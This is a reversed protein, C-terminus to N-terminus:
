FLDDLGPRVHLRRADAYGDRRLRLGRDRHLTGDAATVPNGPLGNIVVGAMAPTVTGSITYTNLTAAYDQATQNASVDTYVRTAPVFTYGALTPTATGDFGYDVTATYTGDAATVPNGPLGNIVVGAMAPTVTGSITYTNLTAAYDQATQNAAVDTYVRTTPVFTYGALTPTATGDFGYDVTAAYTGDAATVPNGPLGNIVVGAMAPTVTGSITYTNLTAAYDQATQNAAVDTYVRNAPVFTYGALTPTATGDFGYNVTATIPGLCEDGPERAPWQDRSGGDGADGYRLDHLHQADRRLGSRDHNATVDTYVRTAPVFTYGALTPTATGDFGYDVTATYTGDAATVPNGPLGNIVVGAMAPTVTGSITYTNLTAAYDQATQNASVDTYVRNAPVFTYGAMTPTATGDFGYNVTAEYYGSANTVPNGPLGNIVVGAMAPTVTGSITYTNISATYDQATQNSILDTYVRNAPSFTYGALTPTVTGSWGVAEAGVYVGSANTVPSETLGSMIVNPLPNGGATITGTIQVVDTSAVATVEASRASEIPNTNSAHADTQTTVVFYYRDGPTLGTVNLAAVTKDVTQGAFTYPGGTTESVYVRYGGTHGTYAIPLWSVMIVADDLATATVSTPAVTQTATWDADKSTLFAALPGDTTYLANYGIATESTSLNVLNTLSTPVPGALKNSYLALNVLTTLNGLTSPITGEFHNGSLDMTTLSTLNGLTSPISGTLGNANLRLGILHTLNGLTAPVEGSLLNEHLFMYEMATMGGWETPISGTLQNGNLLLTKLHVLNGFSAPLAGSLHCAHADLTHALTLNGLETPLEGTFGNSYLNLQLLSTLQGLTAPISGTLLNYHVNLEELHTLYGLTSPLTGTFQNEYLHLRLLNTLNGLSEPVPGSLQNTHLNLSLLGTLTGISAPLTGVLNNSSLNINTVTGNMTVGHWTSETGPLAFGDAHLPPTKWGDHNTWNDGGTANYLEILVQRSPITVYAATYDQGTQDQTLDAYTRTAPTFSYGSLMPTVTGDWGAPVTTDYVGSANTTPNGPLGSMQVNALPNGGLTVSGTMRISVQTWATASVEASSDSTIPNVNYVHAETRTRVTFYYTVGPTLGQIESSAVTKNATQTVESYPGGATQSMMIKYGGTDITYSIPIWSIRIHAGDLATATMGAPAITQTEFWNPDKGNLFVILAAESTYLGNYGIDTGGAALNVLDRLSM